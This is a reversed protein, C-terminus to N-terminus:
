HPLKAHGCDQGGSTQRHRAACRLWIAVARIAVILRVIVAAIVIIAIVPRRGRSIRLSSVDDATSGDARCCARDRARNQRPQLWTGARDRACDQAANKASGDVPMLIVAICAAIAVVDVLVSLWM